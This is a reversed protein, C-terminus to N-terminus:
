AESHVYEGNVAGPPLNGRNMYNYGLGVSFSPLGLAVAMDRHREFAFVYNGRLAAELKAVDNAGFIACLQAADGGVPDNSKPSEEFFAPCSNYADVRRGDGYLEFYLVDDDHNLIAFVHCHFAKSIESSLNALVPVAQDECAADLVVVIGAQIKSVFAPRGRLWHLLESQTVGRVALNTYFSGM